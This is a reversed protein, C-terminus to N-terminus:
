ERVFKIPGDAEYRQPEAGPLEIVVPVGDPAGVEISLAGTLRKLIRKTQEVSSADCLIAMVQSHQSLHDDLRRPGELFLGTMYTSGGEVIAPPGGRETSWSWQARWRDVAHESVLPRSM